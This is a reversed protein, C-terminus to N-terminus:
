KGGQLLARDLKKNLKEVDKTTAIPSADLVSNVVIEVRKGLQKRASKVRNMVDNRLSDASVQARKRARERITEGDRALKEFKTEFDSQLQTALGLGALFTKNAIVIPQEIVTGAFRGQDAKSRSKRAVKKKAPM